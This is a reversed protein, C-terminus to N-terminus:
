RWRWVDDFSFGGTSDKVATIQYRLPKKWQSSSSVQSPAHSSSSTVENRSRSIAKTCFPQVERRKMAALDWTLKQRVREAWGAGVERGRAWVGVGGCRGSERGRVM